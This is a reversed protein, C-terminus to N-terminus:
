HGRSAKRWVQVRCAFQPLESQKALHFVQQAQLIDKLEDHLRCEPGADEWGRPITTACFILTDCDTTQLWHAFGRRNEEGADGFGYWREELRNFRGYRQLFTWQVMPKLPVSTLVLTRHASDLDALYADTIALMSPRDLHPGGEMAQGASILAPYQMWTLGALTAAALWPRLRPWRATGRGYVLAAAGVGATVWIAAVWSHLMRGKHNPHTLTLVTALVALVLVAQGGPRVFRWDATRSGGDATRGFRLPYRIASLPYRIASLLGVACLTVAALACVLSFHYDDVFWTTYDRLGASLDMGQDPTRNALSIYWLFYSPRKPLLFWISLPCLLWLIIQRLREDFRQEGRGQVPPLPTTPSPPTRGRVGLGEGGLVPSLPTFQRGRRWWWSALGLFALVYAVHILNHPPYLSIRHGAIWFPEDGRQFVYASVLLVVAVAWTLPHRLQALAWRRWDMASLIRRVAEYYMRPRTLCEALVIAMVVLLWYNYKELFLALLVLSLFRAKWKEDDRGQVTLLYAYLAVLSLAAGLSELMIDTAYARHAPSAAIFLAAVLGAFTGGRPVCRRAVLFGFFATVVWGALSPLVALRYDLGGVLLATGALLGHLPPWIRGENLDSLLQFVQGNRVDTALKLSYLYHADRDHYAGEWLSRHVDLFRGYLCAAVVLAAVLLVAPIMWSTQLM